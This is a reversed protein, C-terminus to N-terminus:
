SSELTLEGLSNGVALVVFGPLTGEETDMRCGPVVGQFLGESTDLMDPVVMTALGM